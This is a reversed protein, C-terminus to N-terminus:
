DNKHGGIRERVEDRARRPFHASHFEALMGSTFFNAGLIMLLISIFFLPSNTLYREHLLRQVLLWAFAVFGTAFTGIGITGFFHLPRHRFRELMIVTSLDYFLFLARLLGYKSKGHRRPEHRVPVEVVRYGKWKALLMVLRHRDGDLVLDKLLEARYLKFGSNCDHFTQGAVISALANFLRSCCRRLPSDCRDKKWGSVLDAGERIGEMLKPLEEPVDQLDSDITLVWGSEIEEFGASLAASKGLHRRLLLVTIAPDNVALDRLVEVSGDTSGDDVLVMRFQLKLEEAQARCRQVLERLTERENWVPSLFTLPELKLESATM